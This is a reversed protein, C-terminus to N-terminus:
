VIIGRENIIVDDVYCWIGSDNKLFWLLRFAEDPTTICPHLLQTCFFLYKREIHYYTKIKKDCSSFSSM